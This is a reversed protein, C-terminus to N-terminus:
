PTRYERHTKGLAVCDAPENVGSSATNEPAVLASRLKDRNHIHLSPNFNSDYM